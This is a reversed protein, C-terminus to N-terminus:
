KPGKERDRNAVAKVILAFAVFIGSSSFFGTLVGLGLYIIDKM